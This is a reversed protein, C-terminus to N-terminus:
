EEAVGVSALEESLRAPDLVQLTRLGLRAAADVNEPRDDLFLSEEPSCQTIDLAHRYADPDPKRRGTYCSSLFADFIEGLGFVRIRYENLARSENNLTVMAYTGARRLSRAAAIAAPNATSRDWV